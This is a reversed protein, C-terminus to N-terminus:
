PKKQPQDIGLSKRLPAPMPRQVPPAQRPDMPEVIRFDAADPKKTM